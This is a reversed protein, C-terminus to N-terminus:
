SRHCRMESEGTNTTCASSDERHIRYGASLIDERDPEALVANNGDHMNAQVQQPEIVSIGFRRRHGLRWRDSRNPCSRRVPQLQHAERKKHAVPRPPQPIKPVGLAQLKQQNEQVRRQRKAEYEGSPGTRGRARSCQLFPTVTWGSCRPPAASAHPREMAARQKRSPSPPHPKRHRLLDLKSQVGALPTSRPSAPQLATVLARRGADGLRARPSADGSSPAHPAPMAGGAPSTQRIAGSSWSIQSCKTAAGGADGSIRSRNSLNFRAAVALSQRGRHTATSLPARSQRRYAGPNGAKAVARPVPVGGARCYLDSIEQKPKSCYRPGRHVRLVTAATKNDSPSVTRIRIYNIRLKDYM